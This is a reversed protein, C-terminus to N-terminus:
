TKMLRIADFPCLYLTHSIYICKHQHDHLYVAMEISNCLVYVFLLCYLKTNRFVSFWLFAYQTCACLCVWNIHSVSVCFPKVCTCVSSCHTPACNVNDSTGGTLRGELASEQPNLYPFDSNQPMYYLIYSFLQQWDIWLTQNKTQMIVSQCASQCLLNSLM